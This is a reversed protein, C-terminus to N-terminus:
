DPQGNVKRERSALIIKGSAFKKVRRRFLKGAPLAGIGDM